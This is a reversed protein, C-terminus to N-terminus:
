ATESPGQARARVQSRMEQAGHAGLKFAHLHKGVRERLREIKARSIGHRRCFEPISSALSDALQPQDADHATRETSPTPPSRLNQGAANPMATTAPARTRM